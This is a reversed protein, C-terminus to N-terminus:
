GLWIFIFSNAPLYSYTTVRICYRKKLSWKFTNSKKSIVDPHGDSHPLTEWTQCRRCMDGIEPSSVGCGHCKSTHCNAPRLPRTWLTESLAHFIETKTVQTLFQPSSFKVSSWFCHGNILHAIALAPCSVISSPTSHFSSLNGGNRTRFSVYKQSLWKWKPWALGPCDCKIKKEPQTVLKLLFKSQLGGFYIQNHGTFMSKPFWIHLHAFSHCITQFIGNQNGLRQRRDWKSMEGIRRIQNKNQM